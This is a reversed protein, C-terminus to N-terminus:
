WPPRIHWTAATPWCPTRGWIVPANKWEQVESRDLGQEPNSDLREIVENDPLQHWHKEPLAKM